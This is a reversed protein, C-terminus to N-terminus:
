TFVLVLLLICLGWEWHAWGPAKVLGFPGAPDLNFAQGLPGLLTPAPLLLSGPAEAALHLPGHGPPRMRWLLDQSEQWAAWGM